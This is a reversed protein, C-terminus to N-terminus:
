AGGYCPGQFGSQGYGLLPKYSWTSVGPSPSSASPIQVGGQALLSRGGAVCNPRQQPPTVSRDRTAQQAVHLSSPVGCSLQAQVLGIPQQLTCAGTISPCSASGRHNVASHVSQRTPSSPCDSETQCVGLQPVPPPSPSRELRSLQSLEGLPPVRVPTRGMVNGARKPSCHRQWHPRPSECSANTQSTEPCGNEGGHNEVARQAEAARVAAEEARCVAQSADRVAIRVESDLRQLASEFHVRLQESVSNALNEFVQNTITAPDDTLGREALNKVELLQQKLEAQSSVWEQLLAEVTKARTKAEAAVTKQLEAIDSEFAEATAKLNKQMLTESAERARQEARLDPLTDKQALSLRHEIEERARRETRVENTLEGVIHSVHDIANRLRQTDAQAATQGNKLQVLEDQFFGWQFQRLQWMKQEMEAVARGSFAVRLTRVRAVLDALQSDSVVEAGDEDSHFRLEGALEFRQAVTERLEQLSLAGKNANCLSVREVRGCVSVHVYGAEDKEGM